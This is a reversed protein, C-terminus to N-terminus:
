FFTLFNLNASSCLLNSTYRVKVVVSLSPSNGLLLTETWKMVLVDEAHEAVHYWPYGFDLDFDYDSLKRRDIPTKAEYKQSSHVPVM